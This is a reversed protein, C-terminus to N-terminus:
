SIEMCAPDYPARTVLYAGYFETVRRCAPNLPPLESILAAFDEPSVKSAWLLVSCDTGRQWEAIAAGGWPIEILQLDPQARGILYRYIRQDGYVLIPGNRCGPQALVFAASQRWQEKTHLSSDWNLNLLMGALLAAVGAAGAAASLRMADMALAAVALYLAPLAVILNRGSLIPVRLSIVAAVAITLTALSLGVFFATQGRASRSLLPNTVIAAAACIGIALLTPDEGLWLRLFWDVTEDLPFAAM